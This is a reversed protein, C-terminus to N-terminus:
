GRAVRKLLFAAALGGLFAGAVFIEPREAAGEPDGKVSPPGDDTAASPDLAPAPTESAAAGGISDDRDTV